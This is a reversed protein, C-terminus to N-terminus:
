ASNEPFEYMSELRRLLEADSQSPLLPDLLISIIDLKDSTIKDVIRESRHQRPFPIINSTM